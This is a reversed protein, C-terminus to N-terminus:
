AKALSAMPRVPDVTETPVPPNIAKEGVVTKFVNWAMLFMGVIYLV